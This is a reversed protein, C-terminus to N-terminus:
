KRFTLTLGITRPRFTTSRFNPDDPHDHVQGLVPHDNLVNNVFLSLDFGNFRVGGRMDLQSTAPRRPVKKDVLPSSADVPTKDHTTHTYDGRVYADSEGVAFSYESSFRMSWPAIDMPEGKRRIIDGETNFMNTSYRADTYSLSGNLVLGRLPAVTVSLDAGDVIANGFTMTTHVQCIPLTITSQVNKWIVHYASADIALRGGFLANKSGIEYSWLSDPPVNRSTMPDFGINEGDEACRAGESEAIGSGRAGKAANFYYLNNEDAQFSLGVKPTIPRSDTELHFLQGGNSVLPGALFNDDEFTAITYRLGVTAKLRPVIEYDVQAFLSKQIDLYHSKQYIVYLDQYLESGAGTFATLGETVSTFDPATPDIQDLAFNLLPLMKTNAGGFEDTTTTRSFFAGAVWTFRGTDTSQLRLEQTFGNQSTKNHTYAFPDQFGPPPVQDFYNAFLALNLTTDDSDTSTKRTLYSTNSILTFHDFDVAAKIAPLWFRDSHPEPRIHLGNFLRSSDRDSSRLDVLSSDNIKVQQFMASPTITINDAPKWGLAVRAVTSRESNIDKESVERTVRNLRDIYGADFRHSVSARLGLTNDILATGGAVGQEYSIGGNKTSAVESRTYISSGTLAPEPTIFRVAGGLSSTGFLTGQPGRLVEVRDVDFLKPYTNTLSPSVGTRTQVPTDDIYVGTTPIGSTSQIGRIAINSQGTGYFGASQGFTISPTVRALDDASRVGTKDLMEQTTAVVSLPVKSLTEERRTATVVIEELSVDGSQRSKGTPPASQAFVSATSISACGLLFLQCFHTQSRM